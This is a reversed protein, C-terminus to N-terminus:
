SSNNDVKYGAQVDDLTWSLSHLKLAINGCHMDMVFQTNIQFLPTM